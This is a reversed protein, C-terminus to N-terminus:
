PRLPHDHDPTSALVADLLGPFRGEIEDRRLSVVRERGNPENRVIGSERLLKLHHSKTSKPGEGCLAVELAGETLQRVMALRSPDSLAFLVQTLEIDDLAPHEFIKGAHM